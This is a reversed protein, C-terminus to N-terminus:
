LASAPTPLSPRPLTANRQQPVQGGLETIITRIDLLVDVADGSSVLDRASWEKIALDILDVARRM